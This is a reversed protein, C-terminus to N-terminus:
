RRRVADAGLRALVVGVRSSLRATYLPLLLESDRKCAVKESGAVSEQSMEGGGIRVKKATLKRTYPRPGPLGSNLACVRLYSRRIIRVCM